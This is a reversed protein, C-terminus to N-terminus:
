EVPTEYAWEYVLFLMRRLPINYNEFISIACVGKEVDYSENQKRVRCM